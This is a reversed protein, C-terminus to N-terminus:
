GYITEQIKSMESFPINYKIPDVDHVGILYLVFSACASGRGVGWVVGTERWEEILKILHSLFVINNSETFYDMEREVRLLQEENTPCLRDSGLIYDYVENLLEESHDHCEEPVTVEGIETGYDKGYVTAYVDTARDRVVSHIDKGELINKAAQFSSVVSRGDRLLTRNRKSDVYM